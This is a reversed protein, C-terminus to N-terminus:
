YSSESVSKHEYKTLQFIYTRTLFKKLFDGKHAAYSYNNWKMYFKNRELFSGDCKNKVKIRVIYESLTLIDSIHTHDKKSCELFLINQNLFIFLQHKVSSFNRNDSDISESVGKNEYKTFQFIYRKTLSKKFFAMILLM